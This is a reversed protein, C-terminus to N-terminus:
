RELSTLPLPFGDNDVVIRHMGYIPIPISIRLHGLLPWYFPLVTFGRVGFRPSFPRFFQTLFRLLHSHFLRRLHSTDVRRDSFFHEHRRIRFPVKFHEGKSSPSLLVIVFDARRCIGVRLRRLRKGLHLDRRRGWPGRLRLRHDGTPNNRVGIGTM